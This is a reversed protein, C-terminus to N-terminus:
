TLHNEAAFEIIVRAIETSRIEPVYHDANAVTVSPLDPRPSCTRGASTNGHLMILPLGTGIEYGHLKIGPLSWYRETRNDAMEM